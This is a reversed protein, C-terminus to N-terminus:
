EVNNQVVEEVELSVNSLEANDITNKQIMEKSKEPLSPFDEDTLRIGKIEHNPKKSNNYKKGSTQNNGNYKKSHKSKYHKKDANNHDVDNKNQKNQLQAFADVIKQPDSKIGYIKNHEHWLKNAPYPPECNYLKIKNGLATNGEEVLYYGMEKMYHQASRFPSLTNMRQWAEFDRAFPNALNKKKPAYHLVDLTYTKITTGDDCEVSLNGRFDPLNVFVFTREKKSKDNEWSKFTDIANNLSPYLVETLYLIGAYYLPAYGQVTLVNKQQKQQEM